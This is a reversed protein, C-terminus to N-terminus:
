KPDHAPPLFAKLGSFFSLTLVPSIPKPPTDLPDKM